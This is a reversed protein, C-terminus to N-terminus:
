GLTLTLPKALQEAPYQVRGRHAVEVGYFQQGSPVNKVTFAFVCGGIGDQRGPGLEGLALTKAAADSVVVQAGPRLDSFAGGSGTECRAGAAGGWGDPRPPIAFTGKVTMPPPPGGCGAVALVVALLLPTVRM